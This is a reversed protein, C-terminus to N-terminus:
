VRTFAQPQEDLLAVIRQRLEETLRARDRDTAHDTPIPDGIRMTV